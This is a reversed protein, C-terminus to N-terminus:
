YSSSLFANKSSQFKIALGIGCPMFTAGYAWLLVQSCAFSWYFIGVSEVLGKCRM